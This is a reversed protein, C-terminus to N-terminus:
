KMIILKYSEDVYVSWCAKDVSPVPVQTKLVQLKKKDQDQM